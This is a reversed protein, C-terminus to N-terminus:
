LLFSLGFVRCYSGGGAPVFHPIIRPGPPPSNSQSKVAETTAAQKMAKKVAAPDIDNAIQKRAEERKARADALSIEPYPGFSLTNRKGNFRYNFRWLKGGSPTVLLFLGGGDFLKYESVKPKAKRVVTESLQPIRKPM